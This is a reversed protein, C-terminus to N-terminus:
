RFRFNEVMPAACADGSQQARGFTAHSAERHLTRAAQLALSQEM